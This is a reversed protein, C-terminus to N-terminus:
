YSILNQSMKYIIIFLIKKNLFLDHIKMTKIMTSNNIFYYFFFFLFQQKLFKQLNKYEKLNIKIQMLKTMRPSHNNYPVM